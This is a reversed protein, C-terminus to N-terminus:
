DIQIIHLAFVKPIHRVVGTRFNYLSAFQGDHGLITTLHLKDTCLLPGAAAATTIIIIVIIITTCAAYLPCVDLNSEKIVETSYQGEQIGRISIGRGSEMGRTKFGAGKTQKSDNRKYDNVIDCKERERERQVM